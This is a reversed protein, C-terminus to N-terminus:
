RLSPTVAIKEKKMARSVLFQSRKSREQAAHAAAGGVCPDLMLCTRPMVSSVFPARAVFPDQRVSFSVFKAAKAICLM